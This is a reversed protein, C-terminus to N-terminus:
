QTRQRVGGDASSASSLFSSDAPAEAAAAGAGAAAAAKQAARAEREARADAKLKAVIEEADLFRSLTAKSPLLCGGDEDEDGGAGGEAEAGGVNEHLAKQGFLSYRNRAVCDYLADRIVRPVCLGVYGLVPWPPPLSLAIRLAATSRRHCGAEDIVCFSTLADERSIGHRALLPQAATSQLAVFRFRAAARDRRLVFKVLGNCLSCVGDFIITVYPARLPSSM